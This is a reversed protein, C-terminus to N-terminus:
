CDFAGRIWNLELQDGGGNVAIVDFRCPWRTYAAHKQLFHHASNIIRRQKIGTVSAAAGGFRSSARYRVEVFVLVPGQRISGERMILDIEGMKCSFNRKILRM